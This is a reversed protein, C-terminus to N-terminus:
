KMKIITVRSLDVNTFTTITHKIQGVSSSRKTKTISASSANSQHATLNRQSPKTPQIKVSVTSPPREREASSKMFLPIRIINASKRRGSTSSENSVKRSAPTQDLTLLQSVETRRDIKQVSM